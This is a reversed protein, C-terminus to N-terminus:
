TGFSALLSRVVLNWGDVLVFLLIKFPLSVLMPPVMLMGMSMLASAVVMDIVLFPIYLVFGIQFATKLESIVYAPILVYTPVEDRSEVRPRGSLELFLALDKERTHRFMFERLPGAARQLAEAQGIQGERYPVWAEQYVQQWVPAMVFVTLFLALGVLVQNPPAQQTGLASRLFSLAVVIRTFGTMMVLIAPALSLVTLLLLVQLAVGLGEPGTAPRLTVDISPVPVEGTQAAAPGAAVLVAAVIMVAALGVRLARRTCSGGRPGTM